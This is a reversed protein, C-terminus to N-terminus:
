DEVVFKLIGVFLWDLGFFGWDLGRMGGLWVLKFGFVLDGM